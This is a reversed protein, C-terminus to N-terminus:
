VSFSIFIIDSTFSILDVEVCPNEVIIESNSDPISISYAFDFILSATSLALASNGFSRGNSGLM